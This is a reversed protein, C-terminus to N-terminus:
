HLAGSRAQLVGLDIVVNVQLFTLNAAARSDNLRIRVEIVRADTRAAPDTALVDQKGVKYGIRDITGTLPSNLAPSTITARDGIHLYRVDTEYIEAIACMRGTKGLEAIGEPGVREGERADVKLVRGAIPSHITTLALEAQAQHLQAAAVRERLCWEDWDFDNIVSERHLVEFRKKEARVHDLEAALREVEAALTDHDNLIAIVQGRAVPSGDDVFLREIVPDLVNIQTPAAVRIVGDQPELRGLASVRAPPSVVEAQSQIRESANAGHLRLSSQTMWAGALVIVAVSLLLIIKAKRVVAIGTRGNM